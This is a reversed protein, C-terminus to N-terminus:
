LILLHSYSFAHSLYNDIGQHVLNLRKDAAVTRLVRHRVYVVMYWLFKSTEVMDVVRCTLSM